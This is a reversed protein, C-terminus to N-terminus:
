DMYNLKGIWDELESLELRLRCFGFKELQSKGLSLFGFWLGWNGLREEEM